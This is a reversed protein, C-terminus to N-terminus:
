KDSSLLVTLLTKLKLLDIKLSVHLPSMWCSTVSVGTMMTLYSLPLSKKVLLNPLSLRRLLKSKFVSLMRLWCEKSTM